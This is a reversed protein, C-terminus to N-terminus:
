AARGVFGALAAVACRNEAELGVTLRLCHPLGYAGMERPIIGERELWANAAAADRGPAQPFEILLFNGVSPWVKLGLAEIEAKLWPLWRDNHTKAKAQHELDELAAIGAAQAPQSVNFPGRVRNM